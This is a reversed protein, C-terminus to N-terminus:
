PWARALFSPCCLLDGWCKSHLRGDPVHGCMKVAGAPERFREQDQHPTARAPAGLREQDCRPPADRESRSQAFFLEGGALGWTLFVCVSVCAAGSQLNLGTNSLYVGMIFNGLASHSRTIFLCGNAFGQDPFNQMGVNYQPYPPCCGM